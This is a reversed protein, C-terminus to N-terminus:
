SRKKSKPSKATRGLGFGKALESRRESYAAAVMPYDSPLGWKTRYQDPTLGMRSLPRKLTKYRKGDELSILYNPTITSKIPIRPVQKEVAPAQASGSLAALSAAVSAILAPLETQPVANKNVYASVIDATLEITEDM